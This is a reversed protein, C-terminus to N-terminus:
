RRRDPWIRDVLTDGWLRRLVERRAQEFSYEPHRRMMGEISIQRTAESLEIAVRIRGEPGLRRWAALQANQAATTTDRM